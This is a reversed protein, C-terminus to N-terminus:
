RARFQPVFFDHLVDKSRLVMKIPKGIAPAGYNGEILV